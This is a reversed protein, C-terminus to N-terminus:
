LFPPFSHDRSTYEKRNDQAGLEQHGEEGTGLVILRENATVKLLDNVLPLQRDDVLDDGRVIHAM